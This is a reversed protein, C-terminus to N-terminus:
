LEVAECVCVSRGPEAVPFVIPERQASGNGWLGGNGSTVWDVIDSCHM